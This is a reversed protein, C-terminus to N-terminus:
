ILFGDAQLIKDLSDILRNVMVGIEKNANASAQIVANIETRMAIPRKTCLEEALDILRKEGPHLVRNIAFLIDFYSALVAATRHNLSVLDGRNAAKELQTLYSSAIQRLVPYNNALIASVLPEPYDQMAQKQLQAFWNIRDFLIRSIKITHWFCTTYGMSAEHRVLVRDLQDTIWNVTWFVVDVSIGTERDIWENGLGWFDNTEVADSFETGIATRLHAPIETISYVYIDIDSSKNSDTSLQSGAVAVAQVESLQSFRRAVKEAVALHQQDM